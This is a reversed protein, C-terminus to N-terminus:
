VEANNKGRMRNIIEDRLSTVYAGLADPDEVWAEAAHMDYSARAYEDLLVGDPQGEVPEDIYKVGGM